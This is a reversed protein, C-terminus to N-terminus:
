SFSNNNTPIIILYTTSIFIKKGRKSYRIIYLVIRRNRIFCMELGDSFRFLYFGFPAFLKQLGGVRFRCVVTGQRICVSVGDRSRSDARTFPIGNLFASRARRRAVAERVRRVGM